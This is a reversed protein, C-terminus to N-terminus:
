WPGVCDRLTMWFVGPARDWEALSRAGDYSKGGHRSGVTTLVCGQLGQPLIAVREKLRQVAFSVM